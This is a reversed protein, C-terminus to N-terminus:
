VNATLHFRQFLKRGETFWIIVLFLLMLPTAIMWFPQSAFINQSLWVYGQWIGVGLLIYGAMAKVDYEVPYFKQGLLYSVLAMFAYCIFTAWAAGMYGWVPIWLINLVLTIVAGAISVWAGMM